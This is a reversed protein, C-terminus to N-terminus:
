VNTRGVRSQPKKELLAQIGLRGTGARGRNWWALLCITYGAAIKGFSQIRLLVMWFRSCGDSEFDALEM